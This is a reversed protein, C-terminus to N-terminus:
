VPYLDIRNNSGNPKIQKLEYDVNGTFLSLLFNRFTLINALLRSKVAERGLRWMTTSKVQSRLRITHRNTKLKEQVIRPGEEARRM